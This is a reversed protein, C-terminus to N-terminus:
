QQSGTISRSDSVNTAACVVALSLVSLGEFEDMDRSDPPLSLVFSIRRITSSIHLQYKLSRRIKYVVLVFPLVLQSLGM